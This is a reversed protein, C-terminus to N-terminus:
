RQWLYGALPALVAASILSRVVWAVVGELKEIQRDQRSDNFADARRNAEYLQLSVFKDSVQEKFTSLERDLDRVTGALGDHDRRSPFDDSRRQPYDDVPPM